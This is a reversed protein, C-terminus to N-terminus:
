FLLLSVNVGPRVFAAGLKTASRYSEVREYPGSYSEVDSERRREDSREEAANAKVVAVELWSPGLQDDEGRNRRGQQERSGAHSGRRSPL